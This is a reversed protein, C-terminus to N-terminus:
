DEDGRDLRKAGHAAERRAREARAQAKQAKSLGHFAANADAARKAQAKARAKRVKNLNVPTTSRPRDAMM